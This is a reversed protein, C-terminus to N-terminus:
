LFYKVIIIMSMLKLNVKAIIYDRGALLLKCKMVGNTSSPHSTFCSLLKAYKVFGNPQLSKIASSYLAIFLVLMVMVLLPLLLLMFGSIMSYTCM